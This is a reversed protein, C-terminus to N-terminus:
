NSLRAQPVACAMINRAAITDRDESKKCSSCMLQRGEAKILSSDCQPCKRSTSRPDVYYVPIRDWRAKYEIQRQDERFTWSNMRGRFSSGQGNGRRYLKRIGKLREMIIVQGTRKAHEVIRKSVRHIAQATRDRERKGYKALIRRNIRADKSTRQGIKARIAKYKEKLEAIASTDEKVVVGSSDAWTVNRENVDVGIRGRPEIETTEKSFAVAVISDTLTISGRRLDPDDIFSLHYNSARLTLYIFHRPRTPIRLILHSLAYTQNDLKVFHKRIYPDSKRQPNKFASYAVECASLIYHTHLGYEKLRPYAIEILRFRSKPKEKLAIRIADNCMLRFEEFLSSLEESADYGFCIAKISQV